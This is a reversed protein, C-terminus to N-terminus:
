FEVKFNKLQDLARGLAIENGVRRNFNDKLSCVSKGIVTQSKDPTTLEITTSGGRSSIENM